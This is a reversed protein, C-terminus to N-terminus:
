ANPREWLDPHLIPGKKAWPILTFVIERPEPCTKGRICRTFYSM